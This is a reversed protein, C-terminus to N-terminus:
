RRIYETKQDMDSDSSDSEDSSCSSNQWERSSSHCHLKQVSETNDLKAEFDFTCQWDVPGEQSSLLAASSDVNEESTGLLVTKLNITFCASNRQRSSYNCNVESFPNLLESSTNDEEIDMEHEEFDEPAADPNESAQSSSNDCTSDTSYQVFVNTTDSSHPVQSIIGRRTYDHNSIADSDSDDSDDEDSIGGISENAKKKVEKHIIEVSAIEESEFTWPSYALTRIFVLTRPLSKKQLIYGGAHMCKLAGAVMLSFCIAGAIGVTHYDQQAVSDATVCKWASPISHKNLSASVMVSVCYNRNPYLEEIVTTFIEETTKERPRKHEGDLTKLTIGYDLEKYIDILSQLKENKRAHSTPLKITVSICNLCSSINVEPPGLFTDSLPVFHLVSSNLVETGTFRQVLVSYYAFIDKFDETLNCSLQTIDSCQKATKWNRRDTYLVRYYTPVTPDSKAQWSLIHQFNYSQMQLNHPPGGLFREPLSCCATSLISIYM